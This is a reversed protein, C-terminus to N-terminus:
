SLQLTNESFFLSTIKTKNFSDRERRNISSNPFLERYKLLCLPIDLYILCILFFFLFTSPWRLICRQRRKVTNHKKLNTAVDQHLQFKNNDCPIIIRSELPFLPVASAVPLPKHTGNTGRKRESPKPLKNPDVTAVTARDVLICYSQCSVGSAM